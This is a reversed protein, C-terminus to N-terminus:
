QNATVTESILCPLAVLFQAGGSKPSKVEISGNMLEVLSKCIFLGLGTGGHKKISSEDIQRFREFIISQDAESIGPGTDKVSIEIHQDDLLRYSIDIYGQDTFKIANSILNLLIQYLRLHDTKIDLKDDIYNIM